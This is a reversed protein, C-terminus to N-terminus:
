KSVGKINSNDNKEIFFLEDFTYGLKESIQKSLNPGIGRNQKSVQILFGYDMPCELALHRMSYGKKAVMEKFDKKAKIKMGEGGKVFYQVLLIVLLMM